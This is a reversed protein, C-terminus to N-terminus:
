QVFIFNELYNEWRSVMQDLTFNERAVCQARKVISKDTHGVWNAIDQAINEISDGLAIPYVLQGYKSELEPICGVRTTIVPIGLLWAENIALSFAESESPLMVYDLAAYIDGVYEQQSIHIDYDPVKFYKTESGVFVAQAPVGLKRLHRCVKSVIEPHKGEIMRSVFGFAIYNEQIGYERRTIKRGTFPELRKEDSGNYIIAPYHKKWPKAAAHSVAVFRYDTRDGYKTVLKDTWHDCGHSVFIREKASNKPFSCWSISLDATDMMGYCQTGFVLHEVKRAKELLGEDCYEIQQIAICIQYEDPNLNTALDVLWREAGGCCLGASFLVIRKRSDEKWEIPINWNECDGHAIRELHAREDKKCNELEPCAACKEYRELAEPKTRKTLIAMILQKM